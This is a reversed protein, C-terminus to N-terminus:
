DHRRQDHETDVRRIHHFRVTQPLTETNSAPEHARNSHGEHDESPKQSFDAILLTTSRHKRRRQTDAHQCEPAPQVVLTLPEEEMGESFQPVGQWIMRTNRHVM